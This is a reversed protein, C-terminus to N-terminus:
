SRLSLSLSLLASCPAALLSVHVHSVSRMCVYMLERVCMCANSVTLHLSDHSSWVMTLLAICHVYPRCLLVCVNANLMLEDDDIKM